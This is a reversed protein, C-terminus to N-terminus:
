GRFSVGLADGLMLVLATAAFDLLLVVALSLAWFWLESAGLNAHLLQEHSRKRDIWVLLAPVGYTPQLLAAPGMRLGLGLFVVVGVRVVLWMVASMRALRWLYGPYPLRLAQRM